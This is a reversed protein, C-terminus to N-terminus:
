PTAPAGPAGPPQQAGMILTPKAAYHARLPLVAAVFLATLLGLAVLQGASTKQIPQRDEISCVEGPCYRAQKGYILPYVKCGLCIGFASEFFLFAQCVVCILGTIPSHLNLANLMVMMTAALVLGIIWAFKKQTAGVYEPRQNRVILRGLVLSPAFRPNVLVRVVFDLFFLTSAYKLLTFDWTYIVRQIAVLMLVFFLGAAARVERENLVPIDYGDVQEGFQFTKM